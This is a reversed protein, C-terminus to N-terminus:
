KLIKKGNIINIGKQVKNLRQGSINYILANENDANIGAIGTADGLDIPYFSKVRDPTSSGFDLYGKGAAITTGPTAKYFGIGQEKNALVYQDGNAVVDTLAAVLLNETSLVADETKYAAYTGAKEAKVVVAEGAPVTTVPNLTACETEPNITIAFAEVDSNTFDVDVPAVYTAYLAEGVTVAVDLGQWAIASKNVEGGGYYITQIGIKSWTAIEEEGQNLYVTGTYIDWGDSFGYPIESMDEDLEDYIAAELVLPTVEGDKEVYLQYALKSQLIPNGDVDETPIFFTVKPYSTGVTKIGTIEPDAPTAAVDQLKTLVVNTYEDMWYDDDPTEYTVYGEESTLTGAEADYVFTTGSFYVESDGFWGEYIGLYTEPITVVGGEITGVVWAEPVYSSLGQIYVENEGYFGVQVESTVDEQYYTDFGQFYYAETALDEPAVVAEPLEPMESTIVIDYYYDYYSIENQKGNLIIWQDTSIIGNAIDFTCVVDAIDETEPDYGVFFLNYQDMFTGYFQGSPFTVSFTQIDLTGKVWAEPLYECLGQVYVDTGDIGVQLERGRIKGNSSECSLYWTTTQLDEPAVVPDPLVVGGPTFTTDYYYNWLGSKNKSGSEGYYSGDALTLVGSEADFEFVFSEADLFNSEEDVGLAVLYEVGYEDEGIFQGSPVVVEGNETLTGKVYAEPFYYALGQLYVDTGDFAVGVTKEFDFYGQSSAGYATVTYEIPEVGEPLVVPEDPEPEPDPGVPDGFTIDDVLMYFNDTCDFHRIAVYGEQGEYASLDVIYQYWNGQAKRRVNGRKNLRAKTLTWEEVMEFDAPDTNGKTSVFVGFHESPYSADQAVAFFSFKEGLTVKPSVLYNDPTLATGNAYSQSYVAGASGNHASLGSNGYTSAWDYGDGDADITTWGELTGDDFTYTVGEPEPSDGGAAITVVISNIQSNAAIAVVVESALAEGDAPTWTAVKNDADNPIEIGNVTNAGWKGNHNFAIATIVYGEPANFTLTGSYVRLQPGANTSWFRNETNKGEEKPSVALTVVGATLELTETIDGDTSVSSSTAVDMANFDFTYDGSLDPNEPKEIETWAIESENTEDGGTYISKVGIRDYMTTFDYNMYVVKYIDYVDFDYSDTFTYPIISMDEELKTYLDTTFTIPEVVGNIESYFQYYLKSEKLENGEVDTTPVDALLYGYGKEADYNGIGVIAPTAPVAAADEIVPYVFEGQLLTITAPDKYGYWYGVSSYLTWGTDFTLTNETGVGTITSGLLSSSTAGYTYFDGYTSGGSAVFQTEIAFTNGDKMTIDVATEYGGFNYLTVYKPDAPDQYLVVPVTNEGWAMTGNVPQAFSSYYYGSWLYGAYQGEGGLIDAWLDEFVIVGDDYLLAKIPTGEEASMNRLLVPGYTENEFLTQGDEISIECVIGEEAMAEDAMTFTAKISETASSTFGDILVAGNDMKFAVPTGGSTPTSPVLGGAESSYEYYNSCLMWEQTLLNLLSAYDVKQPAKKARSKAQSTMKNAVPTEVKVAKTKPTVQKVSSTVVANANLTKERKQPGAAMATVAIFAALLMFTFKKM